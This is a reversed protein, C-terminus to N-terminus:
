STKPRKEIIYGLAHLRKKMNHLENSIIEVGLVKASPYEISIEPSALSVVEFNLKRALSIIEQLPELFVRQYRERPDFQDSKSTILDEPIECGRKGCWPTRINPTCKCM